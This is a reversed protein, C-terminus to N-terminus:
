RKTAPPLPRACDPLVDTESKAAHAELIQMTQPDVEAYGTSGLMGAGQRMSLRVANSGAVCRVAFETGPELYDIVEPGQPGRLPVVCGTERPLRYYLLTRGTVLVPGPDPLASCVELAQRRELVEAPDDYHAVSEDGVSFVLGVALCGAGFAALPWRRDKGYNYRERM